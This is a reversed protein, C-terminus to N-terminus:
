QGVVICVLFEDGSNLLMYVEGGVWYGIFDGVNVQLFYNGICVLVMGLLIYFCEDEDYYVYYEIIYDGFVVLIFYFGFGIFGIFDGLLLNECKVSDNFFYIKYEGCLVQIDQKCLLYGEMFMVYEMLLVIKYCWLLSLEVFFRM